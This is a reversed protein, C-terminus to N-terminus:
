YSYFNSYPTFLLFEFVVQPYPYHHLHKSIKVVVRFKYQHVTLEFSKKSRAKAGVTRHAGGKGVSVTHFILFIALSKNQIAEKDAMSQRSEVHM